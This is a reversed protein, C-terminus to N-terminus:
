GAGSGGLIATFQGPNIMGHLNNIRTTGASVLMLSDFQILVEHCQQQPESRRSQAADISSSSSDEPRAVSGGNRGVKNTTRSTSSAVKNLYHLKWWTRTIFVFVLWVCTAFLPVWVVERYSGTPCSGVSASRCKNAVTSGEPCFHNEPCIYKVLPTPCYYGKPCMGASGSGDCLQGPLCPIVACEGCQPLARADLVGRINGDVSLPNGFLQSSSCSVQSQQQLIQASAKDSSQNCQAAVESATIGIIDILTQNSINFASYTISENYSANVLANLVPVCASEYISYNQCFLCASTKPVSYIPVMVSSSYGLSLLSNIDFCNSGKSGTTCSTFVAPDNVIEQIISGCILPDMEVALTGLSTACGITLSPVFGVPSLQNQGMLEDYPVAM